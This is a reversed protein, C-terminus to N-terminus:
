STKLGTNEFQKDKKGVIDLKHFGMVAVLGSFNLKINYM